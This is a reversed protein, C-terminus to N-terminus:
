RVAALAEYTSLVRAAFDGATPLFMPKGSLAAVFSTIEAALSTEQSEYVTEAGGDARRLILRYDDWIFSPGNTLEVQIVHSRQDSHRDISSHVQCDQYFLTTEVQDCATKIAPGRRITGRLPDGLLDLAIALHHTLLAHEITDAFTGFKRWELTVRRVSEGALRRQLEKYVPHYLFQYGAALALGRAQATEALARAEAAARAVPKEVFVHKDAELARRAFQSLLAIPTVVAVAKIAPDGLIEDISLRPLSQLRKVGASAYGALQSVAALERAVNKGWAGVGVIATKITADTM